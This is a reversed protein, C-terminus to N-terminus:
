TFFIERVVRLADDEEAADSPMQAHEEETKTQGGPGSRQGELEQHQLSRTYPVTEMETIDTDTESVYTSDQIESCDSPEDQLAGSVKKAPTPNEKTMRTTHIAKDENQSCTEQIIPRAVDRSPAANTLYSVAAQVVEKENMCYFVARATKQKRKSKLPGKGTVTGEKKAMWSPLSRRGESM